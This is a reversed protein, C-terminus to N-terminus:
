SMGPLYVHELNSSLILKFVFKITPKSFKDPFRISYNFASEM